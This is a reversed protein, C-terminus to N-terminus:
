WATPRVWTADLRAAAHPRTNYREIWRTWSTTSADASADAIIVEEIERPYGKAALFRLNSRRRPSV